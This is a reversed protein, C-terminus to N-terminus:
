RDEERQLGRTLGAGQRVLDCRPAHVARRVVLFPVPSRYGVPSRWSDERGAGSPVTRILQDAAGDWQDAGAAVALADLQMRHSCFQQGRDELHEEAPPVEVGSLNDLLPEGNFPGWGHVKAEVTKLTVQELPLTRVIVSQGQFSVTALATVVAEWQALLLVM